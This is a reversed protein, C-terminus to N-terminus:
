SDHRRIVEELLQNIKIAKSKDGGQMEVLVVIQWIDEGTITYKRNPPHEILKCRRKELRHDYGLNFIGIRSDRNCDNSGCCSKIRTIDILSTTTDSLLLGNDTKLSPPVAVSGV